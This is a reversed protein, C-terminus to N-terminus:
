KNKFFRIQKFDLTSTCEMCRVFSIDLNTCNLAVETKLERACGIMLLLSSSLLSLSLSHVVLFSCVIRNKVAFRRCGLVQRSCVCLWEHLWWSDVHAVSGVQASQGRVLRVTFDSKAHFSAYCTAWWFFTM